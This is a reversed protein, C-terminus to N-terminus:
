MIDSHNGCKNKFGSTPKGTNSLVNLAVNLKMLQPFAVATRTSFCHLNCGKMYLLGMKDQYPTQYANLPLAAPTKLPEQTGQGSLCRWYRLINGRRDMESRASLCCQLFSADGFSASINRTWPLMQKAASTSQSNMHIPFPASSELGQHVTLIQSWARMRAKRHGPLAGCRCPNYLLFLCM